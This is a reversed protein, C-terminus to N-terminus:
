QKGILDRLELNRGSLAYETGCLIRYESFFEGISRHLREAWEIRGQKSTFFQVLKDPAEQFHLQGNRLIRLADRHEYFDELLKQLRSWLEVFDPPRSLLQAEVQDALQECVVYLLALWLRFYISENIQKKRSLQGQKAFETALKTKQEHMLEAPYYYHVLLRLVPDSDRHPLSGEGSIGQAM